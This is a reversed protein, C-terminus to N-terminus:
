IRNKDNEKDEREKREKEELNKIWEEGAEELTKKQRENLYGEFKNGFL